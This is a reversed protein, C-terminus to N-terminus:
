DELIEVMEKHILGNSALIEGSFPDFPRGRYDTVRGGAEQIILAGAALDWPYIGTEWFGDFRGAAVYCLNLAASGDRRLAQAKFLFRGFHELLLRPKQRLDYPFGTGLLSTNVCPTDSVRIPAQGLRAGGGKQATFLEDRMPDYVAGLVSEGEVLLAISVAFVPYNHAYNTTGDLPDVVWLRPAGRRGTSGEEALIDDDPFAERIIRVITAECERDMVTVLNIEGKHQINKARGLGERLFAGAAKCAGVATEMEAQMSLVQFEKRV